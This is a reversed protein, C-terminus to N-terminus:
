QQPALSPVGAWTPLALGVLAVTRSVLTDGQKVTLDTYTVGLKWGSAAGIVVDDARAAGAMCALLVMAVPWAKSGFRGM